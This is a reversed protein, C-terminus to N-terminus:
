HPDFFKNTKLLGQIFPNVFSGGLKGEKIEKPVEVTLSDIINSVAAIVRKAAKDETKLCLLRIKLEEEEDEEYDDFAEKVRSFLDVPFRNKRGYLQRRIKQNFNDLFTEEVVEVIASSEKINRPVSLM